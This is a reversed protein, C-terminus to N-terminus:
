RLDQVAPSNDGADRLVRTSVVQFRIKQIERPISPNLLVHGMPIRTTPDVIDFNIDEDPVDQYVVPSPTGVVPATEVTAIQWIRLQLPEGWADVLEPFADSDVNGVAQNGVLEIGSSGDINMRALVAYLYEGPLNFPGGAVFPDPNLPKLSQIGATRLNALRAALTAPLTTIVAGGSNQPPDPYNDGLWSTFDAANPADAGPVTSPFEGVDRNVEFDTGNFFPRPIESNIIDMLIQRRLSRVQVLLPVNTGTGTGDDVPNGRAYAALERNGIPLRRVEYDELEVALLSEIQAIRAETASSKADDQASALVGLSLASLIAIVTIVILLEVLTFATRSGANMNRNNLM